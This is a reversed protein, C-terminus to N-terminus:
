EDALGLAFCRPRPILLYGQRMLGREIIGVVEPITYRAGPPGVFTFSGVPRFSCAVPVGTQETLWALVDRWPKNKVRFEVRPLNALRPDRRCAGEAACGSAAGKGPLLGLGATLALLCCAWVRPRAFRDVSM